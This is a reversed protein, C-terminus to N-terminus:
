IKKMLKLSNINKDKLTIKDIQSLLDWLSVWKKKIKKKKVNLEILIKKNSEVPPTPSM